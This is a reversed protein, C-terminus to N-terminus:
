EPVRRDRLVLHAAGGGCQVEAQRGACGTGAHIRGAAGGAAAGLANESTGETRRERRGYSGRRKTGASRPLGGHDGCQYGVDFVSNKGDNMGGFHATRKVSKIKGYKGM